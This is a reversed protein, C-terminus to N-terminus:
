NDETTTVEESANLRQLITKVTNASLVIQDSAMVLVSRTRKGVTADVLRDDERADRIMQRIPKSNVSVLAIIKDAAVYNGYGIGVMAM